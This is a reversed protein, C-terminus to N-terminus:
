LWVSWYLVMWSDMRHSTAACPKKRSKKRVEKVPM